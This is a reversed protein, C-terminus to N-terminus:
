AGMRTMFATPAALGRAFEVSVSNAAYDEEWAKAAPQMGYLWRQLLAAGGGAEALLPAFAWDDHKVSGSLHVKKVDVPLLKCRARPHEKDGRLAMRFPMRMAEIPPMAAVLEFRDTAGKKNCDRAVM